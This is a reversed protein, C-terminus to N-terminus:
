DNSIRESPLIAELQLQYIERDSLLSIFPDKDPDYFGNKMEQRRINGRVLCAYYALRGAEDKYEWPKKVYKPKRNRNSRRNNSLSSLRVVNPTTM